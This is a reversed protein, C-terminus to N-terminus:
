PLEEKRDPPSLIKVDVVKGQFREVAESVMPHGLAQQKLQEELIKKKRKLAPDASRGQIVIAPSRGALAEIAQRIAGVSDQRKVRNITFQNGKVEITIAAESVQQLSAQQLNAALAPSGAKLLDVIATWFTPYQSPDTPLAAFDEGQPGAPAEPAPQREDSSSAGRNEAIPAAAGADPKEYAGGGNIIAQRLAAVNEILEDMPVAPKIQCTQLLVMEIALRPHAALRVMAEERYLMAFVQNLAGISLAQVQDRLGAIESEPLDVLPASTDGVKIVILNRMHTLLDAYLKKLDQGRDYVTKLATLVRAVDGVLLADGLDTIVHRDVVGVINLVQEHTVTGESCTMVQDLLSLADRMSGGAERAVLTLSEGPIAIGERACLDAMQRTLSTIGIRRLDYRQCRSLITVPIKHPETTAFMFLIHAPPEELTKLLANFAPTSLMHVEDIIYIKFPSYAPMYKVNERLDRVQDVSNNSAGDIEFVDAANGTTIERCSRCQNCPQATPGQQCNMAKALIRAVTTKGTGRPGAFLIAHAVRGQHIANMLTRTVHEQEVVEEFTQPRYKRALVLYGM